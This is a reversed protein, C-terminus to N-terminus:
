RLELIRVAREPDLRYPTEGEFFHHDRILHPMLESFGISEGSRINKVFFINSARGCTYVRTGIETPEEEYFFPCEQIGASFIVSVKFIDDVVRGCGDATYDTLYDIKDAIQNYNVGLKRITEADEYVVDRLNQKRGLFGAESFQRPRMRAEIVQIQESTLDEIFLQKPIHM